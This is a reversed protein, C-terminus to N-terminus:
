PEDNPAEVFRTCRIRNPTAREDAEKKSGFAGAVGGGYENVWVERPRVVCRYDRARFVAVENWQEGSQLKEEVKVERGAEMAAIAENLADRLRKINDLADNSM